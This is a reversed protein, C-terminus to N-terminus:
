RTHQQLDWVTSPKKKSKDYFLQNLFISFLRVPARTVFLHITEVFVPSFFVFQLSLSLLYDELSGPYM